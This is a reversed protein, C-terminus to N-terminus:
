GTLVNRGIMPRPKDLDISPECNLHMVSEKLDTRVFIIKLKRSFTFHSRFQRQGKLHDERTALDQREHDLHRQVGCVAAHAVLRSFLHSASLRCRATEFYLPSLIPPAIATTGNMYKHSM